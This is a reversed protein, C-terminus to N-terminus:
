QADVKVKFRVQGGTGPALTGTFTWTVSGTGGSAPASVNVSELNAPLPTETSASVFTTYAPTGDAIFLETLSGAGANTYTITYEIEQGPSATVRDVEKVLRLGPSAAAGVTTVDQRTRIDSLDPSAGTYAFSATVVATTTAGWPAGDPANQRMIIHYEQGATVPVATGVIVAGPTGNGSSDALVVQVWPVSAPSASHSLSFTVTGATGAIFTHRYFVIGGPQVTQAGDTLFTNVPVDGFRFGDLTGAPNYTFSIRDRDRSYSGAAGAPLGGGTSLHGPPNTEEIILTDGSAVANPGSSPVYLSFRGSGDTVSTALETEGKLLRLVVGAIGPESADQRGNNAGTGSSNGADKFVTGTLMGTGRYLGINEELLDAVGLSVPRVGDVPMRFLWGDPAIATISSDATTVIIRYNGPAVRPILYAGASNAAVPITRCVQNGSNVLNVYVAPGASWDEFGDRHGNPEIDNYVFGRIELGVIITNNAASVPAYQRRHGSLDTSPLSHYQTVTGTIPSLTAGKLAAINDVAFTYNLVLTEDPRLIQADTLTFTWTGTSPEWVRGILSLDAVAVGGISASDLQPATNRLGDPLAETLVINYAPASGTNTVTLKFRGTEGPRLVNASCITPDPDLALRTLSLRPQRVIAGATVASPGASNDGADLFVPAAANELTTDTSDPAPTAPAPVGGENIIRARYTIVLTNNDTLNDGDNALDGFQWAIAGTAGTAPATTGPSPTTYSLPQTESPTGSHSAPVISVTDIFALGAPLTDRVEFSKLLGEQLTSTVTWTIIDGVRFGNETGSAPDADNLGRPLTDGSRVKAIGTSNQATASIATTKLYTNLSDSAVGIREGLTAGPTQPPDIGALNPGPNGDLSTWDAVLSSQYAQLPRSANDVTLQFTFVKTDGPALDHDTPSDSRTRGWTLVYGSVEDGTIQPDGLATWGSPSVTSATKYALGLPLTEVLALDYAASINAGSANALTVQYELVDGADATASAAFSGSRTVNRIQRTVSIVPEAVAVTVPAITEASGGVTFTFTAANTLSANRINTAVNRVQALYTLLVTREATTGDNVLRNDGFDWTITQSEVQTSPQTNDAFADGFQVSELGLLGLGAPLQDYVKLRPVTGKPIVLGIQYRIQEGIVAPAAMDAAVSRAIIQKRNEIVSIAAVTVTTAPTATLTRAAIAATGDTNNDAPTGKSGTQNVATTDAVSTVPVSRAVIKASSQLEELPNVSSDLRGRYLLVITSGPNIRVLNAGDTGSSLSTWDFTIKNGSVIAGGAADVTGDNNTDLGGSGDVLPAKAPLTDEVYLSFLGATAANNTIAIRYELVDGAQAGTLSSAFAPTDTGDPGRNRVQKVVSMSPRIVTVDTFAHLSSVTQSNAANLGDDSDNTRFTQGLYTFQLGLNNRLSKSAGAANAPINLARVVLDTEFLNSGDSNVQTDALDPLVFAVRSGAVSAPAAVPTTAPTVSSPTITNNATPTQSVYALGTHASTNSDAPTDNITISTVGAEAGFFRARLRYTAEEGILVNNGTSHAAPESTTQLTKGLEVGIIRQGRQDWSYYDTVALGDEGRSEGRVRLRLRLSAPTGSYAANVTIVISGGTGLAGLQSPAFTWLGGTLTADAGVTAATGGTGATASTVRISNITWGAGLEPFDATINGALSGTDGVNTITFTYNQAGTGTLVANGPSAATIDLNPSLLDITTNQSNSVPSDCSNQYDVKVTNSGSAPAVPDRSNTSDPTALGPFDSAYNTDFVVPRVYWTLRIRDGYRLIHNGIAPSGAGTGNLTFVPAQPNDNNVTVSTVQEGPAGSYPSGAPRDHTVAVVTSATTDLVMNANPFTNTVVISYANGGHNVIEAVIRARGGPLYTITQSIETGGGIVPSLILSAADVPSGPSQTDNHQGDAPADCGWSVSAERAAPTINCDSGLVETILYTASGGNAALDPIAIVQGPTLTTNAHGPGNIVASGGTGSLVDSLRVHTADANGSNTVVVRWEITDGRGGYVISTYNGTTQGASVNRATKTLTVEPKETSVRVAGTSVPAAADGCAIRGSASATVAPIATTFSPGATVAFRIRLEQPIAGGESSAGSHRLRALPLIQSSTWQYPAAETGSGTPNSAGTWSGGDISYQVSGPKFLLSPDLVEQIVVDFIDSAGTNRVFLEVLGDGCLRAVSTSTDHAILMQGPPTAYRPAVMVTATYWNDDCGWRARTENSSDPFSCATDTDITAIIRRTLTTGQPIDGLTWTLTERYTSGSGSSTRVLSTGSNAANTATEDVKLTPPMLNVLESDYAIGDGTNTIYILWEVQQGSIIVTDPTARVALQASRVIIPRAAAAAAFGTDGPSPSEAWTQLDDYNVTASLTPLTGSAPADPRLRVKFTVTSPQALTEGGYTFVPAGPAGALALNGSNFDGGYGISQGEADTLFEYYSGLNVVVNLNRALEPTLNAVAVTAEIIECRAPDNKSLSVTTRADARAIAYYAGQRFNSEQGTCAGASGSPVGAITLRAVQLLTRSNEGALAADSLTTQYRILLQRGAVADSGTVAALFGLDISLASGNGGTVNGSPVATWSSGSNLSYELTGPVLTQTAAISAGGFDDAYVSDTWTGIYGAGFVYSATFPVFEGEGAPIERVANTSSPLGTEFVGDSASTVDFYQQVTATPNNSLFFTASAADGITCGETSTATTIALATYEVGAECPDSAIFPVSLTATSAAFVSRPVRWTVVRTAENYDITTGGPSATITGIAIGANTPLAETIVLTDDAIFAPNVTALSVTFAGEADEIAIRKATTTQGLVISPGGGPPSISSSITPTSYADGCGNAYESRWIVIGGPTGSCYNKTELKFGLTTPNDPTINSGDADNSVLTFEGTSDNYSWGGTVDTVSVGLDNLNTRLVVNHAVGSYGTYSEVSFPGVQVTDGYVLTINPPSYTILPQRLDLTVASDASKAIVGARDDTAVTNLITECDTVLAEVEVVFSEGPALYPMVLVPLSGTASRSPSTKTMASVQLSRSTTNHILSEDIVVDFLAGLGTNTVTVIFSATEGVAKTQDGSGGGATIILTGAGQRVMIALPSSAQTSVTGGDEAANAATITQAYTGSALSATAGTTIGYDIVLTANAPLDYGSPFSFTLTSGSQSASVSTLGSDSSSVLSATGPVYNFYSPLTVSLGFEYRLTADNTITLRVTDASVEASGNWVGGVDMWTRGAQAPVFVPSLDLAARAAPSAGLIFALFAACFPIARAPRGRWPNHNM